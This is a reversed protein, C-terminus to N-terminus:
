QREKQLNKIKDAYLVKAVERMHNFRKLSYNEKMDMKLGIWYDDNWKSSNGEFPKLERHTEFVGPINKCYEFDDKYDEFTPDVDLSDLFVIRIKSIDRNDAYKRVIESM